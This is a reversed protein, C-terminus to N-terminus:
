ESACITWGLATAIESAGESQEICYGYSLVDFDMTVELDSTVDYQAPKYESVLAQESLLKRIGESGGREYAANELSSMLKKCESRAAAFESYDDENIRLRSEVKQSWM